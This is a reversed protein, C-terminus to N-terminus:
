RCPNAYHATISRRSHLAAQQSKRSSFDRPVQQTQDFGSRLLSLIQKAIVVPADDREKKFWSLAWTLAGIMTLRLYRRDIGSRLPLDCALLSLRAALGRRWNALAAIQDTQTILIWYNSIPNLLEV